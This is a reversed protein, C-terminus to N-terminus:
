GYVCHHNTAVLGQDSLFAASCGGLSVIANLPAANFDGLKAPDMELGEAKMREGIAATQSPLWMGEDALAAAPILPVALLLLRRIM